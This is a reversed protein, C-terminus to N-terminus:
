RMKQKTSSAKTISTGMARNGPNLYWERLDSTLTLITTFLSDPLVVYGYADRLPGWEETLFESVMISQGEGKPKPPAHAGERSWVLRRGDNQYFISEDHTVLVLRPYLATPTQFGQAPGAIVISSPQPSPLGGVEFRAEYERWRTVFQDRYAVVDEREHGDVYMGRKPEGYQWSLAALWRGATRVSISKKSIQREELLKQVEESAFVGVVDEASFTANKSKETIRLKLISSIGEDYLLSHHKTQVQHPLSRNFLYNITWRRLKRAYSINGKAHSEVVVESAQSWTYSNKSSLWLNLLSIIMLLRTHLVKGITKENSKETLECLAVRLHETDKLMAIVQGSNLQSSDSTAPTLSQNTSEFEKRLKAFREIPDDLLLDL